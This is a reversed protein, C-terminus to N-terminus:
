IYDLHVSKNIEAEDRRTKRTVTVFKVHNM